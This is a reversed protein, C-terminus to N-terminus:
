MAFTLTGVVADDTFGDISPGESGVYAVGLTLGSTLPMSAGISWDFGEDDGLLPAALLKPALVGDTYGLHASLSIPTNPVGLTWDTYVYLNDNGGLADQEWAYAVGVTAGVPGLTTGISAYP